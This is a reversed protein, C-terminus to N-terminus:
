GGKEGVRRFQGSGELTALKESRPGEDGTGGDKCIDAYSIEWRKARKKRDSNRDEPPSTTERRNSQDAPMSRTEESAAEKGVRRWRRRVKRPCTSKQPGKMRDGSKAVRWTSGHENPGKWLSDARTHISHSLNEIVPDKKSMLHLRGLINNMDLFTERIIDTMRKWESIRDIVCDEKDEKNQEANTACKQKRLASKILLEKTRRNRNVMPTSYCSSDSAPVKGESASAEKDSAKCVPRGGINLGTM